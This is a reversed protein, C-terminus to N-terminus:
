HRAKHTVPGFMGRKVIGPVASLKQVVSRKQEKFSFTISSIKQAKEEM